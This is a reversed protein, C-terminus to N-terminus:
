NNEYKTKFHYKLINSFENYHVNHMNIKGIFVLSMNNFPISKDKFIYITNEKSDSKYKESGVIFYNYTNGYCIFSCYHSFHSIATENIPDKYIYEHIQYLETINDNDWCSEIKVVDSLFQTKFNNYDFSFNDFNIKHATRVDTLKFSTHEEIYQEDVQYGCEQLIQLTVASSRWKNGSTCSNEFVMHQKDANKLKFTYNLSNQNGEMIAEEVRGFEQKYQKFFSLANSPDRPVDVSSYTEIRFEPIIDVEIKSEKILCVPITKEKLLLHAYFRHKGDHIFYDAGVNIVTIPRCKNELIYGISDIVRAWNNPDIIRKRVDSINCGTIKEVPIEIYHTSYKEPFDVSIREKIYVLPDNEEHLYKRYAGDKVAQILGNHYAEFKEKNEYEIM